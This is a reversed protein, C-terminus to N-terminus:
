KLTRPTAQCRERTYSWTIEAVITGQMCTSPKASEVGSLTIGLYGSRPKAAPATPDAPDTQASAATINYTKGKAKLILCGSEVGPEPCGMIQVKDGDSAVVNATGLVLLTGITILQYSANM